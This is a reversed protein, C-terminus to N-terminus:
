KTPNFLKDIKAIMEDPKFPKGIFDNMGADFCDQIEAPTVGATCAIIPITNPYEGTSSRIAKAAEIGSMIPMQIDMLILDFQKEKLKVLVQEGNEAISVDFNPFSKNIVNKALLQNFQNDEAILISLHEEKIDRLQAVPTQVLAAEAELHQKININSYGFTLVITFSTGKNLESDVEITGNQLEVLQKSIALGLGTGGYLKSTDNTVRTFSEFIHPLKEKSIGIGTDAIIFKIEIQESNKEITKLDLSIFGSHTFKIANGLLNILIQTLRVEDGILLDPLTDDINILFRLKKEKAKLFLTSYVKDILMKIDFPSNNLKVRGADLKSYDLIDNIIVLLNAASNKIAFVYGSQEEDMRTKSLLETFGVVANMPTRIEHSMNALFLQKMQTSEEQLRRSKELELRIQRSKYFYYAIVAVAIAMLLYFWWTRYFPPVVRLVLIAQAEKWNGEGLSSKFHLQYTGPSLNSFDAKHNGGTYVWDTNYGDLKYAYQVKEPNSYNICIFDVSISGKTYDIAIYPEFQKTYDIAFEQENSTVKTFSMLRGSSSQNISDPMFSTIGDIAGCFIVGNANRYFAGINFESSIIGDNKDYSQCVASEPQYKILGNNTSIWLNGSADGTIANMEVGNLLTQNIRTIRQNLREFKNLGGGWTGLWINKKADEYICSVQNSSISSKNEADYRYRLYTNSKPNFVKLGYDTGLWIMQDEDVYIAKVDNNSSVGAIKEPDTYFTTKSTNLQLACLGYNMIGMWLTRSKPDLYLTNIDLPFQTAPWVTSLGSVKSILNLGKRSGVYITSADQTISFIEDSLLQRGPIQATSYQLLSNSKPNYRMLGLADTGIWINHQEDELVAYVITNQPAKFPPGLLSINNFKNNRIVKDVGNEHAVWVIDTHDIYFSNIRTGTLGQSNDLSTFSNNSLDFNLVYANNVGVYLDQNHIALTSLGNESIVVSNYILQPLRNVNLADTFCWIGEFEASVWIKGANDMGVGTLVAPTGNKSKIDERAIFSNQEPMYVCLGKNTAMYVHGNKDTALQNIKNSLINKSTNGVGYHTFKANSAEYGGEFKLRDLGNVTSIWYNLNNDQVMSLVRNASLTNSKSNDFLFYDIQNSYVNYRCLGGEESMIWLNHLHDYYLNSISSNIIAKGSKNGTFAHLTNGDYRFLGKSTGIWIFGFDDQVVASASSYGAGTQTFVNIVSQQRDGQAYTCCVVTALLSLILLLRKM